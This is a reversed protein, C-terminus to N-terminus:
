MSFSMFIILMTLAQENKTAAESSPDDKCSCFL